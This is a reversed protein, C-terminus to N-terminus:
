VIYEGWVPSIIHKIVLLSNHMHLRGYIVFSLVSSSRRCKFVVLFSDVTGPFYFRYIRNLEENM